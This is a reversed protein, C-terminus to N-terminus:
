ENLNESLLTTFTHQDLHSVACLAGANLWIADGLKPAQLELWEREDTTVQNVTIQSFENTIRTLETQAGVQQGREIVCKNPSVLQGGTGVSELFAEAEQWTLCELAIADLRSMAETELVDIELREGRPTEVLRVAVDVDATTLTTLPTKIVSSHPAHEPM